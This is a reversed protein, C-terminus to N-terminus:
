AMAIDAIQMRDPPTVENWRPRQLTPPAAIPSPHGTTARKESTTAKVGVCNPLWESMRLPDSILAFVKDIPAPVNASYTFSVPGM